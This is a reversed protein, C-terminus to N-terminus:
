MSDVKFYLTLHVGVKQSASNMALQGDEVFDWISFFIDPISPGGVKYELTRELTLGICIIGINHWPPLMLIHRSMPWKKTDHPYVSINWFLADVVMMFFNPCGHVDSLFAIFEDSEEGQCGDSGGL